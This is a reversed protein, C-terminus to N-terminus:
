ASRRRKEVVCLYAEIFAAPGSLSVLSCKLNPPGCTGAIIMWRKLARRKDRHTESM